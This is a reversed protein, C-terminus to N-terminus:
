IDTINKRVFYAIVLMMIGFFIFVSAVIWTLIRPEVVILVGLAIFILGPIVLVVGSFPNKLVGECTDVMPCTPLPTPTQEGM